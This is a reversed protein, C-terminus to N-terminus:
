DMRVIRVLVDAIAAAPGQVAIIKNDLGGPASIAFREILEAGVRVQVPESTPQCNDPLRPRIGNKLDPRAPTKWLVHWSEPATQQLELYAPQLEHAPLVRLAALSLVMVLFLCRQRM